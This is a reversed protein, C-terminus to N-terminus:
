LARIKEKIVPLSSDVIEYKQGLLARDDYKDYLTKITIYLSHTGNIIRAPLKDSIYQEPAKLDAEKMLGQRKLVHSLKKMLARGHEPRGCNGVFEAIKEMAQGRDEFPKDIVMARASKVFELELNEIASSAVIMRCELEEKAQAVKEMRKQLERKVERRAAASKDLAEKQIGMAAFLDFSATKTSTPPSLYDLDAASVQAPTTTQQLSSIVQKADALPFDYSATKDMAFLKAWVSKNAEAAVFEIQHPTLNEQTAIKTLTENLPSSNKGLYEDAALKAFVGLTTKDRYTSM